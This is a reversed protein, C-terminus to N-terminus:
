HHDKIQFDFNIALIFIMFIHAPFGNISYREIFYQTTCRLTSVRVTFKGKAIGYGLVSTNIVRQILGFQNMELLWTEEDIDLTVGLFVAADDDQELDVGM